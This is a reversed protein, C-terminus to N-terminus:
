SVLIHWLIIPFSGDQQFDFLADGFLRSQSLCLYVPQRNAQMARCRKFSPTPGRKGKLKHIPHGTPAERRRTLKAQVVDKRATWKLLTAVVLRRHFNREIEIEGTSVTGTGEVM